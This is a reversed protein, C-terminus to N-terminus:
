INLVSGFLSMFSVGLKESVEKNTVVFVRSEEPQQIVTEQENSSMLNVVELKNELSLLRLQNYLRGPMYAEELELIVWKKNQFAEVIKKLIDDPHEKSSVAVIEYSAQTPILGILDNVKGSQSVVLGMDFTNNPTVTNLAQFFTITKVQDEESM